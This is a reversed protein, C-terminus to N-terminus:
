VKRGRGATGTPIREDHCITVNRGAIIACEDMILEVSPNNWTKKLNTIAQQVIEKSYEPKNDRKFWAM